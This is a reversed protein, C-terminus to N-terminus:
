AIIITAHFPVPSGLAINSVFTKLFTSLMKMVDEINVSPCPLKHWM